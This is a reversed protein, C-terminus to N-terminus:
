LPRDPPLPLSTENFRDQRRGVRKAVISEPAVKQEVWLELSPLLDVTNLGPGGSCHSMGPVMFLRYFSQTEQDTSREPGRAAAAQAKVVSGYYQAIGRPSCALRGLRSIRYTQARASQVRQSGPQHCQGNSRSPRRGGCRGPKFDFTKWDWTPGFVWKFISDYPPGAPKRCPALGASSAVVPFAPTLHASTHGPEAPRRVAEECNRGPQRHPLGGSRPLHMAPSGSGM